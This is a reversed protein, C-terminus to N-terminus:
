KIGKKIVSIATKPDNLIWNISLLAAPYKLNFKQMLGKISFEDISYDTEIGNNLWDELCPRLVKNILMLDTSATEAGYQSYGRELLIDRIYEKNM